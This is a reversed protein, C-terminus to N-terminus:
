NQKGVDFLLILLSKRREGRNKKRQEDIAIVAVSCVKRCSFFYGKMKMRERRKREKVRRRMELEWNEEKEEKM